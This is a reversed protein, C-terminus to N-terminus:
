PRCSSKSSEKQSALPHGQRMICVFPSTLLAHSRLRASPNTFVGVALDIEAQELLMPANIYTTPM